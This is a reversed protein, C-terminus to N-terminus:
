PRRGGGGGGGRSPAPASHGGSSPAPASRSGGYSPASQRPANNSNGVQPASRPQGGRSYRGPSTFTQPNSNNHKSNGQNQRVAPGRDMSGRSGTRRADQYRGPALKSSQSQSTRGIRASGQTRPAANPSSSRQLSRGSSGGQMVSGAPLRGLVDTTAGTVTTPPANRGGDMAGRRGPAGTRTAGYTRVTQGGYYTPYYGNYPYYPYYPNYPYYPYYSGYYGGYYYPYGWGFGISFSWPSYYAASYYDSPWYTPYYYSYGVHPHDWGDNDHNEDYASNDYNVYTSDGENGSYEPYDESTAVQTYCGPLLLVSGIVILSLILLTKM